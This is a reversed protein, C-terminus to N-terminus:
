MVLLFAANLPSGGMPSQILCPSPTGPAPDRVLTLRRRVRRPKDTGVTGTRQPAFPSDNPEMRIWRSGPQGSKLLKGLFGIAGRKVDKGIRKGASGEERRRFRRRPHFAKGLRASAACTSF